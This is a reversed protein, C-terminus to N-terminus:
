LIATKLSAWRQHLNLLPNAHSERDAYPRSFSRFVAAPMGSLGSKFKCMTLLQTKVKQREINIM